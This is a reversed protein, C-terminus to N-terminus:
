VIVEGRWRRRLVEAMMAGGASLAAMALFAGGQLTEYLLGASLMGVGSAVGLTVSSHLTQARASLGPPAARNLFHMAGLHMCGFTAAHLWQVAVLAVPDTTVALVSWRLVGGLGGLVLLLGPGLRAVVWGSFAFLVVEAIVGEAWLLGILWGPLGAAQWHLTAFGYYIMHSAQLLSASVLFALFLPSKLLPGLPQPRSQGAGGTTMDPLALCAALTAALGAAVMWLVLDAPRGVILWGGGTAAAIFSLSGWLRVRGYDFGQRVALMMALNEGVPLMSALFVGALVTVALLPWFGGVLAFLLFSLLSGISLLVMPWRRDGRRDVWHGVLPNSVIKTFFTASLLVGIQGADMGQAKLWVPWFPLHVGVGAFFAVYFLALRLPASATTSM